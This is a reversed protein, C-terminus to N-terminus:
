GGNGSRPAAAGYGRSAATAPQAENRSIWGLLLAWALVGFGFLTPWYIMDSRDQAASWQEIGLYIGLLLAATVASEAIRTQSALLIAAGPVLM